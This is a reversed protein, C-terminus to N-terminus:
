PKIRKFAKKPPPVDEIHKFVPPGCEPCYENVPRITGCKHCPESPVTPIPPAPVVVPKSPLVPHLFPEIEPPAKPPNKPYTLVLARWIDLSRPADWFTGVVAYPPERYGRVQEPSFVYTAESLAIGHERCWNAAQAANGALLLTKQFTM